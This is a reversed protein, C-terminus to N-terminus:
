DAAPYRSDLWRKMLKIKLQRFEENSEELTPKAIEEAKVNSRFESLSRLAAETQPYAPDIVPSIEFLDVDILTRIVPSAADNWEQVKASFGFSVKLDGDRAADLQAPTFRTVDLDFKLGRDDRTLTLKGGKTSGLPQRNDHGWLAFISREGRAAEALSRDFAGPAIREIFGGLDESDANFVAAYGTLRKPQGEAQADITLDRIAFSRTEITM